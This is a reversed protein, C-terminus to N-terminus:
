DASESFESDSGDLEKTPDYIVCPNDLFLKNLWWYIYEAETKNNAGDINIKEKFIKVTTKKKETNKKRPNRFPNKIPTKIYLLLGPFKESDYKVCALLNDNSKLLANKIQTWKTSMMHEFIEEFHADKINYKSDSLIKVVEIYKLYDGLLDFDRTLEVLKRPDVHVTKCLKSKTLKDRLSDLDIKEDDGSMLYSACTWGIEGIRYGGKVSDSTLVPALIFEYLDDFNINLLNAFRSCCLEHLKYLDIRDKLLKFKYNRMTTGMEIIEINKWFQKELYQQLDSIPSKLDSLDECLVGPVTFKGNRFVKIKYEKTILEGPQGSATKAPKANESFVDPKEPKERVHKGLITFNIQSNFCTGDGQYKRVKRVKAKKKRGRRTKKRFEPKRYGELQKHGFNCDIGVINDECELYEIIYEENFSVNSFKGEVSCTSNSIPSFLSKNKKLNGLELQLREPDDTFLEM